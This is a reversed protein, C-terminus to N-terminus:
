TTGGAATEPQEISGTLLIMRGTNDPLIGVINMSMLQGGSVWEAIMTPLLGNVRRITIQYAASASTRAQDTGEAANIVDIKAWLTRWEVYTIVEAGFSNQSAIKEYITVRHRLEGARM